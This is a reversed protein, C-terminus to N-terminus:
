FQQRIFCNWSISVQRFVRLSLECRRGFAIAASQDHSRWSKCCATAAPKCDLVLSRRSGCCTVSLSSTLIQSRVYRLFVNSFLRAFNRHVPRYVARYMTCYVSRRRSSVFSHTALSLRFISTLLEARAVLPAISSTVPPQSLLLSIFRTFCSGELLICVLSLAINIVWLVRLSMQSLVNQFITCM